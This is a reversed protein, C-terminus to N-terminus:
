GKIDATPTDPFHYGYFTCGKRSLVTMGDAELRKTQDEIWASFNRAVGPAPTLRISVPEAGDPLTPTKTM